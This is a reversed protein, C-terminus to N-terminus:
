FFTMQQSFYKNKFAQANHNDLEREFEFKVM